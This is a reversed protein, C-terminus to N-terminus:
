QGGYLVAIQSRLSAAMSGMGACLGARSSMAAAFCSVCFTIFLHSLSQKLNGAPISYTTKTALPPKHRKRNTLEEQRRLYFMEEVGNGFPIECSARRKVCISWCSAAMSGMGGCLGANPHCPQQPYPQMFAAPRPRRACERARGAWRSERGQGTKGTVSCLSTRLLLVCQGSLNDM